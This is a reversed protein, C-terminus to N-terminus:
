EAAPLRRLRRLQEAREERLDGLKGIRMGIEPDHQREPAMRGFRERVQIAGYAQPGVVGAQQHIPRETQALQIPM